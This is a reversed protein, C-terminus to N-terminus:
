AYILGAAFAPNSNRRAERAMERLEPQELQSELHPFLKESIRAWRMARGSPLGSATKVAAELSALLTLIGIEVGFVVSDREIARNDEVVSDPAELHAPIRRLAHSELFEDLDAMSVFGSARLLLPSDKLAECIIGAQFLRIWREVFFEQIPRPLYHDLLRPRWQSHGLAEAMRQVSGTELYVLVGASSRLRRLTFRNALDLAYERSVNAFLELRSAVWEAKRCAESDPNWSNPAVGMSPTAVFLLTWREDERARLWDRLPATLDILDRVVALAEEDLKIKQEALNAGKRRKYGVLHWGGDSEVLGIMRGHKDYLPLTSLYSPTIQPYKAVLVTAHALLLSPTAFGLEWCTDFLSKSYKNTARGGKLHSFGHAAYAKQASRLWKPPETGVNIGESGPDGTGYRLRRNLRFRAEAVEARAWILLTDVDRRIDRFLLDKAEADSVQLPIRTLLTQTSEEGRLTSVVNRLAGAVKKQRPMPLSRLPRAWAKGLLHGQLLAVFNRWDSIISEIGKGSAHKTRFLHPYFEFIADSIQDSSDFEISKCNHTLWEAFESVLPIRQSRGRGLWEKSADFLESTRRSGFQQYFRWLRLRSMNGASNRAEWGQWFRVREAEPEIANVAEVKSVFTSPWSDRNWTKPFDPFCCEPASAAFAKKLVDLRQWPTTLTVFRSSYHAAVFRGMSDDFLDVVGGRADKNGPSTLECFFQFRLLFGALLSSYDPRQQLPELLAEPVALLPYGEFCPLQPWKIVIPM